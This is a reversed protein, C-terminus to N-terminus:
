FVCQLYFTKSVTVGMKRLENAVLTPDVAGDVESQEGDTLIILLKRTNSRAGNRVQFLEKKALKLALDTFDFFTIVCDVNCKVPFRAAYFTHQSSLKYLYKDEFLLNETINRM